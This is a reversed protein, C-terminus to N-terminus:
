IRMTQSPTTPTSSTGERAKAQTRCAGTETKNFVIKITLNTHSVALRYTVEKTRLIKVKIISNRNVKKNKPCNFTM